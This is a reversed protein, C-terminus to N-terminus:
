QSRRACRSRTLGIGALAAVTLSWLAPEPVSSSPQRDAVTMVYFEELGSVPSNYNAVDVDYTIGGYTITPDTYPGAVEIVGNYLPIGNPETGFEHPPSVWTSVQDASLSGALLLSGIVMRLCSM